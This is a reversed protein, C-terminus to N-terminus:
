LKLLFFSVKKLTMIIVNGQSEQESVYLSMYMFYCM